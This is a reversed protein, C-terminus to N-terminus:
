KADETEAELRGGTALNAAAVISRYGAFLTNFCMAIPLSAYIWVRSVALAPTRGNIIIPSQCLQLGFVLLIACFILIVLDIFLNAIRRQKPSYRLLFLDVTLHEGKILVAISGIFTMWILSYTAVEETWPLKFLFVRGVVQISVDVIMVLLLCACFKQCLKAVLMFVHDIKEKVKM